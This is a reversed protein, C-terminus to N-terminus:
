NKQVQMRIWQRLGKAGEQGLFKRNVQLLDAWKNTWHDTYEESGILRDILADRKQKQNTKDSVFEQIVQASPPLGTIDLYARRVFEYDDCLGSPLIKMREWKSAVLEDIKNNASPQQWVFESRDGMVTVTTATYNGEYRILIPAEGRRITNILSHSEKEPEAM